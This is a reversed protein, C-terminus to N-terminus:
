KGGKPRGGRRGNRRAAAAKAHSTRSGLTAAALMEPTQLRLTLVSGPVPEIVDKVFSKVEAKLETLNNVATTTGTIGKM